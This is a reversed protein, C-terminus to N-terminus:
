KDTVMPDDKREKFRTFNDVEFKTFLNSVRPLGVSGLLRPITTKNGM